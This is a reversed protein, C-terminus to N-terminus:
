CKELILEQFVAESGAKIFASLQYDPYSAIMVQEFSQKQEDSLLHNDNVMSLLNARYHIIYDIQAQILEATNGALGHGTFLLTVDSIETLLQKLVQLWQQSNGDNMFGHMNNFVVDGVFVASSNKGLTFYLDSSSEAAGLDRFRYELGDLNLVDGDDVLQDPLLKYEPWEKGFYPKWKLEKADVTNKICDRVGITSIIPIEGLGDIVVGTGNYHDPHGHTIIVCIIPKGIDNAHQRLLAADSNIMMTDVVVLANKTEIIYANTFFTHESSTLMHVVFGQDSYSFRNYKLKSQTSIFSM